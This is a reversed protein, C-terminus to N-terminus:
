HLLGLVLEQRGDGDIDAVSPSGPGHTKPITGEYTFTRPWGPLPAWGANRALVGMLDTARHPLGENTVQGANTSVVLDLVGDGTADAAILPDHRDDKKVRGLVPIPLSMRGPLKGSNGHFALIRGLKNTPVAIDQVGDADLDAILPVTWVHKFWPSSVVETG